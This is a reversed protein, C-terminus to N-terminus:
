LSQVFSFIGLITFLAAFIRLPWSSWPQSLLEISWELTRIQFRVLAPAFLFLILGVAVVTGSILANAIYHHESVGGPELAV